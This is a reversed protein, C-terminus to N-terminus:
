VSSRQFLGAKAAQGLNWYQFFDAPINIASVYSRDYQTQEVSYLGTFNFHHKEFIIWM